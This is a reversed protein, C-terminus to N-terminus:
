LALVQEELQEAESWKGQSLYISALSTISRLTDPYEAGLMKRRM